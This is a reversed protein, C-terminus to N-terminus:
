ESGQRKPLLFVINESAPDLGLGCRGGRPQGLGRRLPIARWDKKAQCNEFALGTTRSVTRGQPRDPALRASDPSVTRAPLWLHSAPEERCMARLPRTVTTQGTVLTNVRIEQQLDHRGSQVIVTRGKTM